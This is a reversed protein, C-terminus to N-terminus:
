DFIEELSILNDDPIRDIMKNYPDIGAKVPVKNTIYSFSSTGPQVWEKQLILASKVMMGQTNKIDNDFIGIDLANAKSGEELLKGNGDFYNKASEVTITVEYKNDELKKYTAATVKNSYLTIKEFSDEVYYQLSDPPVEKMYDYWEITTTFPTERFKAATMYVKFGENLNNEGILDQLRFLILGGKRYWVYAQNDNDLLTKEFKSENASSRLYNNGVINKLEMVALQFLLSVNLSSSFVKSVKLIKTLAASAKTTDLNHNKKKSAYNKHLSRQFNFRFLTLIFLTFGTWGM